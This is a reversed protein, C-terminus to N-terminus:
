SSQELATPRSPGARSRAPASLPSSARRAANKKTAARRRRARHSGGSIPRACRGAPAPRAASPGASTRAKCSTGPYIPCGPTTGPPAQRLHRVPRGNQSTRCRGTSLPDPTREFAPSRYGRRGSRPAESCRPARPTRTQIGGDASGPDSPVPAPAPREIRPTGPHSILRPGGRAPASGPPTRACRSWAPGRGPASGAEGGARRGGLIGELAVGMRPSAKGRAVALVRDFAKLDYAHGGVQLTDGVVKVFRRVCQEADVAKVAVDFISAADARMKEVTFRSM